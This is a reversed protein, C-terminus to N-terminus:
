ISNEECIVNLTRILFFGQDTTQFIQKRSLHGRPEFIRRNGEDIRIFGVWHNRAERSLLNLLTEREASPRCVIHKVRDVPLKDKILVESHRANLTSSLESAGLQLFGMRQITSLAPSRPCTPPKAAHFSSSADPNRAVPPPLRATAHPARFFVGSSSRVLLKPRRLPRSASPM